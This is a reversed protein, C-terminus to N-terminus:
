RAGSNYTQIQGPIAAYIAGRPPQYGTWLEFSLAAQEVLMGLGNVSPIGQSRATELLVTEAPNYVLDYLMARSPFPIASPWPTTATEPAMGLPTTNVILLPDQDHRAAQSLYRSLSDQSLGIAETISAPPPYAQESPPPQAAEQQLNSILDQAQSLRRAAVTVEWGAQLLAYVVARASGGAGLVIARSCGAVELLRTQLDSYFGPADTNDGILQGEVAYLTNVAGIASATPTLRDLYPIIAQKYPITINLGRLEGSRVKGTLERLRSSTEQSPPIPYLCYEGQLECELLCAHHISPSLSHGLPYGVLGLKYFVPLDIEM